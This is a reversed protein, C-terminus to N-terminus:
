CQDAKGNTSLNELMKDIEEQTECDVVFSIIPPFTIPYGVNIDKAM